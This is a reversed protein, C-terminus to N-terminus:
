EATTPSRGQGGVSDKSHVMFFHVNGNINTANHAGSRSKFGTALIDIVDGGGPGAPNSWDLGQNMPNYENLSRGKVIWASIGSTNKVVVHNTKFPLSVFPGDANGNGNYTGCWFLDPHNAFLYARYEALNINASSASAPTNGVSYNAATPPKGEWANAVQYIASTINPALVDQTPDPFFKSGMLHSRANVNGDSSMLVWMDPEVGLSHAVDRSANGDGTWSVIDFFGPLKRLCRVHYQGAPISAGITFGDADFSVLSAADTTVSVAVNWRSYKGVGMASDFLLWDGAGIPKLEIFDPQFGVGTISQGAGTVTLPTDPIYIYDKPSVSPTEDSSAQWPLFGAPPDYVQNPQIAGYLSSLSQNLHVVYYGGPNLTGYPNAGTAPDAGAGQWVNNIGLWYDGTDADFAIQLTDGNTSSTIIAGNVNNQTSYGLTAAWTFGNAGPTSGPGATTYTGATQLHGSSKDHLGWFIQAEDLCEVYVKGGTVPVTAYCYNYNPNVNNPVFRTNGNSVTGTKDLPNMLNANILPSDNFVTSVGNNTWHNGNGSFDEGINAVNLTGDAAFIPFLHSGGAGHAGTYRKPKWTVGDVDLEGLSGIAPPVRDFIHVEALQANLSGSITASNGGIAMLEGSTFFHTGAVRGSIDTIENGPTLRVGNMYQIITDGNPQAPDFVSYLHYWAGIDRLSAVSQEYSGNTGSVGNIITGLRDSSLVIASESEAGPRTSYGGASSNGASIVHQGGLAIGNEKKLWVSVGFAVNASTVTPTRSLYSTGDFYPSAGADVSAIRKKVLLAKSVM